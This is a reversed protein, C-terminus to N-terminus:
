PVPMPVIFGTAILYSYLHSVPSPPRLDAAGVWAGRCDVEWGAAALAPQRAAVLTAPMPYAFVRVNQSFLRAVGELVRGDLHRYHEDQLIRILTGVGVAFRVPAQTFRNVLASMHYLERHAAVLVDHGSAALGDARRLLEATSPTGGDSSAAATLVYVGIPEMGASDPEVRLEVVAADLMREHVPEFAEFYGPALAVRKKYFAEVPPVTAEDGQLVVGEALGARVLEIAAGRREWGAFAPGGFDIEDIEIRERALDAGLGALFSGISTREHHIAYLVNVGLIGVAEQQLVNSGNMLNVHLVLDSPAGGPETEFRVGMWGHSLNTGAYNRAALTDAFAFFRTTAGRDRALQEGLQSWEHELMAELRQRSVYRSGSGYLDDSVVKDYASVTKAVTGSAAGVRLFWRSVEQGAGIEAFSGFITPDLNLALAKAHTDLTSSM